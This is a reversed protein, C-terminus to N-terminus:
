RTETAAILHYKTDALRVHKGPLSIPGLKM